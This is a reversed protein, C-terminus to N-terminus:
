QGTIIKFSTDSWSLKNEDINAGKQKREWGTKLKTVVYKGALGLPISEAQSPPSMGWGVVFVSILFNWFWWIQLYISKM